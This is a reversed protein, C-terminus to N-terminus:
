NGTRRVEIISNPTLVQKEIEDRIRRVDGIPKGKPDDIHWDVLKKQMQSIMPKPCVAEVSCGMTVVLEAEQITENTLMKPKASSLDVGIERMVQLVTPHVATSPMTGASLAVLDFKKALAEAM